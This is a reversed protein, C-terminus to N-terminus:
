GKSEIVARVEPLNLFSKRFSPRGANNAIFEVIERANQHLQAAAEPETELLSLHFLISWLSGKAGMAEAEDRAEMFRTRAEEIRGLKFLAQGLLDLVDPMYSHAGFGQLQELLENGLQLTRNYDTKALALRVDALVLALCLVPFAQWYPDSRAKRIAAEAQTLDGSAIHNQALATQAYPRYLPVTEDAVLLAKRGTELGLDTAGLYAYSLALEAGAFIQPNPLDEAEGLRISEIAVQISLGLEGRARHVFGIRSRSFALNWKNGISNSIQWCEDSHAVAEDYDGGFMSAFSSQIHVDALMPLDDFDQWIDAAERAMEKARAIQGVVWYWGTLDQLTLALQRYDKLERALVQAQEGLQIAKELQNNYGYAAMLNWLIRASTARDGVEQALRLAQEALMQGKKPNHVSSPISYLIGQAALAKLLMPKNARSRGLIEMNQYVALAAETNAKHELTRGLKTFIDTLEEDYRNSQDVKKALSLAQEYYTTAEDYAYVRAANDGAQVLYTMSKEPLHAMQFHHALQDSIEETRGAFLQELAEGVQQHLYSCEIDDLQHYLYQRFLNHRFQYLSLRKTGSLRIGQATVLRYQRDLETSLRRAVARGEIDLAQSIVEATFTEGEVSALDLWQRLPQDLHSLRSEIVGEVRPPVVDWNFNPGLVWQGAEDRLLAGRQQMERLLEVTFLPHGNTHRTLAQRFTEDLANAENDLLDDIFSRGRDAESEDLAVMIQGFRRKYEALVPVLPHLGEGRGQNVEEPRYAGAILLAGESLRHGLHALLGISSSDAWHLDDLILLLPQRHSLAILFDAYQAFLDDQESLRSSSDRLRAAFTNLREMQGSGVSISKARVILGEVSVLSGLLSPGYQLLNDVVEPLLHWLRLAQDRSIDGASWATELDGTLMKLVDRFIGYPACIPTYVPCAGNAVTLDPFAVQARRVFERLLTTKGQGAEGTIFVVGGRGQQAQQLYQDLTVLEKERGVFPEQPLSAPSREQSLFAPLAKRKAPVPLTEAKTETALDPVRGQSLRRFLTQTEESPEVGLEAQLAEVCRQYVASMSTLDGLAAHSRMLARYTPEPAGGMAIWREGWVLLDEWRAHAMLKNLLADLRRNVMGAFRERELMVWDDYFGPLLEGEYVSVATILSDTTWGEAPKSELVTVDLWFDAASDFSVTMRDAILYSDSIAKRIRWLAQRLYTRANDEVVEPWILGALMERRQSKGANLALYALLAQAPRSSIEVTTGDLTLDFQGLLRIELLQHVGQVYVM